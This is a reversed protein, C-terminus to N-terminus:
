KKSIKPKSSKPKSKLINFEVIVPIVFSQPYDYEEKQLVFGFFNETLYWGQKPLLLNKGLQGNVRKVSSGFTLEIGGILKQINKISDTSYWFVLRDLGETNFQLFKSSDPYNHPKDKKLSDLFITPHQEIHNEGNISFVYIIGNLPLKHIQIKINDGLYCNAPNSTYYPYQSKFDYKLDPLVKSSTDAKFEENLKIISFSLTDNIKKKIQTTDQQSFCNQCAIFYCINILLFFKKM